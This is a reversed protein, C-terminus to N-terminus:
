SYFFYRSIHFMLPATFVTSDLRDLLGGHGPLASGSDKVGLDRKVASITVDGLFGALALGAGLMAAGIGTFPSMFPAIILALFATSALGGIFGEWTKNPSVTPIIKNKGLLKGWCYQAVDNSATLILLLLLLGLGEGPKAVDGYYQIPLVLLFAAHGLAYVAMMVGWHLTGLSLIFRDTDGALVMAVPLIMFLYVPVLIIFFGYQMTLIFFAQVPLALYALMLAWRDAARLPMLTAYERLALYAILTLVLVGAGPTGFIMPTLFGFILWWGKIRANFERAKVAKGGQARKQMVQGLGTAFLLVGVSLGIVMLLTPPPVAMGIALILRFMPDMLDM